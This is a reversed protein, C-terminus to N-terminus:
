DKCTGGWNDMAPKVRIITVPSNRDKAEYWIGQKTMIILSGDDRNSPCYTGIRANVDKMSSGVHLGDPTSWKDCTVNIGRLGREIHPDLGTDEWVFNICESDYYYYVEDASYGPGRFTSRNVTDPKGLHRVADSVAGGLQVPGIRDGAMILHDYNMDRPGTPQPDSARIGANPSWHSPSVGDCGAVMLTSIVAAMSILSKSAAGIWKL